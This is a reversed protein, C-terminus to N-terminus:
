DATNTNRAAFRDPHQKQEGHNGNTSDVHPILYKVEGSKKNRNLKKEIRQVNEYTKVVAVLHTIEDQLYKIMANAGKAVNKAQDEAAYAAKLYAQLEAKDARLEAILLEQDIVRSSTNKRLRRNLDSIERELENIKDQRKVATYAAMKYQFLLSDPGAHNQEDSM